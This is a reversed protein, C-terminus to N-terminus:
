NVSTKSKPGLSESLYQFFKLDHKPHYKLAYIFSNRPHMFCMQYQDHSVSRHSKQNNNQNGPSPHVVTIEGSAAPICAACINASVSWTIQAFSRALLIFVQILKFVASLFTLFSLHFSSRHRIIQLLKQSRNLAFIDQKLNDCKTNENVPTCIASKWWKRVPCNDMIEHNWRTFILNRCTKGLDSNNTSWLWQTDEWKNAVMMGAFPNIAIFLKENRRWKPNRIHVAYTHKNERWYESYYPWTDNFPRM